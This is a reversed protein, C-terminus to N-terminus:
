LLTFQYAGCSGVCGYARFDDRCRIRIRSASPQSLVNAISNLERPTFIEGIQNMLGIPEFVPVILQSLPGFL